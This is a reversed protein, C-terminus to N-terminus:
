KAIRRENNTQHEGAAGYTAIWQHLCFCLWPQFMSSCPQFKDIWKSDRGKTQFAETNAIVVAFIRSTCTTEFGSAKEVLM